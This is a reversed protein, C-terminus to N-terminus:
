PGSRAVFVDQGGVVTRLLQATLMGDEKTVDRDFVTFDAWFGPAIRGRTNEEFAAWAAWQTFGAVAEQPSLKEQPNWGQPPFGEPTKRTTAAWLGLRPDPNEVPVDSGLCLKAGAELLSRWRYAWFIRQPGLRAPAWPMDSTCHTPQVSAVVGLQAFAPLDEPRVVQAHEIRPRLRPAKEGLVERLLQLVQHVAEDGIAHICPQYGAAAAETVVEQLRSLPTVSLGVHGPADSYAQSLWAGRSGLAGDAYLKVARVTLLGQQQVGKAMEQALLAPDSGDLMVYVRLPLQGSAALKRLSALEQRRTGADHIATFGLSVLKRAAAFQWRALTEEDPPPVLREVLQTAADVLVGTPLGQRDRVITGGPPDPTEPGLGALELARQNVLVAHGDVRRALVPHHPVAQSLLAHHPFEKEPWLNQDWGRALIWQGPPVEKARQAIREVVQSFRTTGTLDVTELTQGFGTLHGHSETFGPYLHAGKLDVVERCHRQWLPIAEPPVLAKVKGDKVAVAL